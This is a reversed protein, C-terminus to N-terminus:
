NMFSITLIEKIPRGYQLRINIKDAICAQNNVINTNIM